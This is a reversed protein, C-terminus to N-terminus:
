WIINLLSSNFSYVVLFRIPIYFFLLVVVTWGGFLANVFAMGHPRRFVKPPNTYDQQRQMCPSKGANRQVDCAPRAAFHFHVDANKRWDNLGRMKATELQRSRAPIELTCTKERKQHKSTM